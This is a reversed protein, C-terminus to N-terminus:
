FPNYFNVVALFFVVIFTKFIIITQVVFIWNVGVSVFGFMALGNLVVSLLKGAMKLGMYKFISKKIISKENIKQTKIIPNNASTKM